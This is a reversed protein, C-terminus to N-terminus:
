EKESPSTTDKAQLISTAPKIVQIEAVPIEDVDSKGFSIVMIEINGIKDFNLTKKLLEFIRTQLRESTEKLNTPSTLRLEVSTNIKSGNIKVNPRAAEVFDDKLCAQRILEQLAKRSVLVSGTESSFATLRSPPKKLLRGLGILVLVFVAFIGIIAYPHLEDLLESAQQVFEPM